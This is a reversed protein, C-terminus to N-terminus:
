DKWLRWIIGTIFGKKWKSSYKKWNELWTLNTRRKLLPYFIAVILLIPFYLVYMIIKIGAELALFPLTILLGVSEIFQKM